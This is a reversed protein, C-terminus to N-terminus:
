GFLLYQESVFNARAVLHWLYYSAENIDYDMLLVKSGAIHQILVVSHEFHTIKGHTLQKSGYLLRMEAAKIGMQNAAYRIFDGATMQIPVDRIANSVNSMDKIFLTNLRRGSYRDPLRSADLTESVPAQQQIPSPSM